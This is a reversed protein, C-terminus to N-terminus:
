KHRAAPYKSNERLQEQQFAKEDLYTLAEWMNASKAKDMGPYAGSEALSFLISHWMPTSDQVKRFDIPKDAKKESVTKVKPFLHKFSTFVKERVASYVRFADIRYPYPIAAIAQAKSHKSGSSTVTYLSSLLNDFEPERASRLYRTFASDMEVLQGFTILEFHADPATFVWGRSQVTAFSFSKPPATLWKFGRHFLDVILEASNGARSIQRYIDRTKCIERLALLRAFPDDLFPLLMMLHHRRRSTLEEWSCFFIDAELLTPM